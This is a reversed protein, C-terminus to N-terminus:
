FAGVEQVVSPELDLMPLPVRGPPVDYGWYATAVTDPLQSAAVDSYYIPLIAAVVTTVFASNAWDYLAWARLERSGLGLRQIASPSRARDSM